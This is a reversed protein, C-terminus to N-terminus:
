HSFFDKNPDCTTVYRMNVYLIFVLSVNKTSSINIFSWQSYLSDISMENSEFLPLVGLLVPPRSLPIVSTM